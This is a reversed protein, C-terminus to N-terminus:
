SSSYSILESGKDLEKQVEKDDVQKRSQKRKLKKIRGKRDRDNLGTIVEGRDFPNDTPEIISGLDGEKKIENLPVIEGCEHCQKFDEYDPPIAEGKNSKMPKLRNLVGISRCNPCYAKPEEEEDVVIGVHRSTRVIGPM